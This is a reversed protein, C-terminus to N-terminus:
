MEFEAFSLDSVYYDVQWVKLLILLWAHHAAVGDPAAPAPERGGEPEDASPNAAVPAAATSFLGDKNAVTWLFADSVHGLLDVQACV